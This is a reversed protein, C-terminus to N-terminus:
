ELVLVAAGAGEAPAGFEGFALAVDEFGQL